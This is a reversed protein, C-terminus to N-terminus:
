RARSCVRIRSLRGRPAVLAVLRPAEDRSRHDAAALDPHRANSARDRGAAVPLCREGAPANPGYPRELVYRLEYHHGDEGFIIDLGGALGALEGTGSDPVVTVRLCTPTGRAM